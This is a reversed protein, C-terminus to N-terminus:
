AGKWGTWAADEIRIPAPIIGLRHFRDAVLQQAAVVDPTIPTYAFDSRDVTDRLLDLPLGTEKAMLEAMAGRNQEAWHGDAALASMAAALLPAHEDAFARNALAYGASSIREEPGNFSLNRAGNNRIALTYYPDWIVWGDIGGQTFAAAADAPGLNVVEVDDLTLGARELAVVAINHASSGRTFALKRGKLDAISNLGSNAPTLIGGAKGSLKQVATYVLPAGAAQAFIPPTDGTGGLDIGGVALAELLPPGSAFEVWEVKAAGAKLLAKDFEGRQKALLFVGNKQYGVRLKTGDGAKDGGCGALLVAGGLSAALLSRRTLHTSNWAM